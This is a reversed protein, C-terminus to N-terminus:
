YTKFLTSDIVLKDKRTIGTSRASEVFIGACSRCLHDCPCLLCSRWAISGEPGFYVGFGVLCFQLILVLFRNFLNYRTLWFSNIFIAEFTSKFGSTLWRKFTIFRWNKLHVVGSVHNSDGSNSEYMQIQVNSSSMKVIYHYHYTCYFM